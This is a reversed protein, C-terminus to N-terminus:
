ELRSASAAMPPRRTIIRSVARRNKQAQGSHLRLVNASCTVPRVVRYARFVARSAPTSRSMATASAPRAADRSAAITPAGALRCTSSRSTMAAGSGTAGSGRTTPTSSKAM